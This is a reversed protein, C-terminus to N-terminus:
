VRTQDALKTYLKVPETGFKKYTCFFFYSARHSATGLLRVIPERRSPTASTRRGHERSLQKLNQALRVRGHHPPIAVAFAEVDRIKLLKDLSDHRKEVSVVLERGELSLEVQITLKCVACPYGSQGTRGDRTRGHM